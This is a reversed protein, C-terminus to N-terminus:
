WKENDLHPQYAFHVDDYLIKFKVPHTRDSRSFRIDWLDLHVKMTENYIFTTPKNDGIWSTVYIMKKGNRGPTRRM